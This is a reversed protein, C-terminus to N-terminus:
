PITQVREKDFLAYIVVVMEDDQEDSTTFGCNAQSINLIVLGSM